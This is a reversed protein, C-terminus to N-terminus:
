RMKNKKVSFVPKKQMLAKDSKEYDTSDVIDGCSICRWGFFDDAHDWFKEYVM